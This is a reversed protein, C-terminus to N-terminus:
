VACNESQETATLEFLYKEGSLRSPISLLITSLVVCRTQMAQVTARIMEVGLAPKGQGVSESERVQMKTLILM